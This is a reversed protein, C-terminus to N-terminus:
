MKSKIIEQQHYMYEQICRLLGAIDEPENHTHICIRVRELGKAVTPYVIPRVLYGSQILYTALARPESTILPVIPSLSLSSSKSARRSCLEAPLSLSTNQPQSLIDQLGDFLIQTLSFTKAARLSGNPTAFIDLASHISLLTTHPVATSYILPRAYNILFLRVLPKCLVVAGSCGFAKGFTALRIDISDRIELEDALGAGNFGYLGVAHAEDVILCRRERPIKSDVLETLDVLPCLDGDMSYVSEVVVFVNASSSSSQSNIADLIRSLDSLDSHRFAIRKSPLTRSARMGDHVSAHILSDYIIYDNPQPLNALLSANADFGSNFLLASPSGLQEHEFSNGDLLRSGTSGLPYRTSSQLREVLKNRMELSHGLGMYDNSSFDVLRKSRDMVMAPTSAPTSSTHVTDSVTEYRSLQRLTGKTRRRDLAAQLQKELM